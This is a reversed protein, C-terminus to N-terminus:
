GNADEDYSEEIWNKMQRYLADFENMVRYNTVQPQNNKDGFIFTRIKELNRLHEKKKDEFPPEILNLSPPVCPKSDGHLIGCHNCYKYTYGYITM